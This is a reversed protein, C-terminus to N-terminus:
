EELMDAIFRIAEPNDANERLLKVLEYNGPLIGGPYRGAPNAPDYGPILIKHEEVVQDLLDPPVDDFVNQLEVPGYYGYVGLRMKVQLGGRPNGVVGYLRLGQEDSNDLSSFFAGIKGHSHLELVVNDPREYLVRAASGVQNPSKLGYEGNEYVIAAYIETAHEFLMLDLVIEMIGAPIKAHPLHFKPALDPLGRVKAQAIQVRGNLLPSEAEVFLGNGAFLYNYYLGRAGYLGDEHFVQYGVQPQLETM